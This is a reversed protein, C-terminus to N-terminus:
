FGIGILKRNIHATIRDFGAQNPHIGDTLYTAATLTSISSDNLQDIVPIGYLGCVDKLAKLVNNNQTDTSRALRYPSLFILRATVNAASIRQIANLIDGYFTGASPADGMAGLVVAQNSGLEVIGFDYTGIDQALTNGAIGTNTYAGNGGTDTSTLSRNTTPTVGANPAGYCEFIQAMTRGWRSDIFPFTCGHFAVIRSQIGPNFTGISDGFWFGRKNLFPSSSSVPQYMVYPIYTSPVTTGGVIMLNTRVVGNGVQDSDGFTIRMYYANSPVAIATGPPYTQGSTPLSSVTALYAKNVDYFAIGYPAFQRIFANSVFTGIGRVLIYDSAFFTSAVSGVTGNASLIASSTTIRSIDFLNKQGVLQNILSISIDAARGPSVKAGAFEGFSPPVVAGGVIM